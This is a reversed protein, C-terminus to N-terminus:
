PRWNWVEEGQGNRDPLLSGDVKEPRVYKAMFDYKGRREVRWVAGEPLDRAGHFGRTSLLRLAAEVEFPPGDHLVEPIVLSGRTARMRVEDWPAREIGRMLDFVVLPDHTLAYRTSHAQALWEGVFREGDNLLSRFLEERERVWAAFLQHQTYKSTQALYGARGLALIADGVRAIGVNSGDLKETVIIRDHRDRAKTTCIAAQGDPVKDGLCLACGYGECLCPLDDSGTM